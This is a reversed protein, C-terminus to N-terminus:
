IHTTAGSAAGLFEMTSNWIFTFAKKVTTAPTTVRHVFKQLDSQESEASAMIAPLHKLSENLSTSAEQLNKIMVPDALLKDADNEAQTTAEVLKTTNAGFDKVADSTTKTLDAMNKDTDQLLKDTTALVKHMDTTTEPLTKNNVIKVTRNVDSLTADISPLTVANFTKATANVQKMTEKLNKLADLTQAQVHRQSDEMTSVMTEVHGLTRIGQVCLVISLALIVLVFVDKV